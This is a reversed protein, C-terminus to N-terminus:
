ADCHSFSSATVQEPYSRLLFETVVGFQSSGGRIAWFLDSNNRSNCTLIRGDAVVVTAELINDAGPSTTLSVEM